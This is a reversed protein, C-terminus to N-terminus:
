GRDRPSPSTYLLCTYNGGWSATPTTNIDVLAGQMQIILILDGEDLNGSFFAGSMTNDDVTLQVDGLNADSTLFTYTNVWTDQAGVSLNGLSGRQAILSSTSILLISIFLQLRLM